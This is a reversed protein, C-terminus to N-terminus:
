SQLADWEWKEPVADQVKHGAEAKRAYVSLQHPAFRDSHVEVYSSGVSMEAVTCSGTLLSFEAVKGRAMGHDDHVWRTVRVTTGDIMEPNEGFFVWLDYLSDMWKVRASKRVRQAAPDTETTTM